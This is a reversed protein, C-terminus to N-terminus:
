LFPESQSTRYMAVTDKAPPRKRTLKQLFDTVDERKPLGFRKQIAQMLWPMDPLLSDDTVNADDDIFDFDKYEVKLGWPMRYHHIVAVEPKVDIMESGEEYIVLGHPSVRHVLDVNIVHKVPARPPVKPERWVSAIELQEPRSRAFRIRQLRLSRVKKRLAEARVATQLTLLTDFDFQPPQVIQEATPHDHMANRSQIGCDATCPPWSHPSSLLGVHRFQPLVIYEDVDVSALLWKAHNKARFLCDNLIYGQRTLTERPYFNFHVRSAVGSNLYPTLVEKEAM